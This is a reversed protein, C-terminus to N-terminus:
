SASPRMISINAIPELTLLKPRVTNSYKYSVVPIRQRFHFGTYYDRVIKSYIIGAINIMEIGKNLFHFSKQKRQQQTNSSSLDRLNTVLDRRPYRPHTIYALLYYFIYCSTPIASCCFMFFCPLPSGM